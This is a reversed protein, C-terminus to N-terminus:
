NYYIIIFSSLVTSVQYAGLFNDSTVPVRIEVKALGSSDEIIIALWVSLM